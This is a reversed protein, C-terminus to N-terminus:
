NFAFVQIGIWTSSILEVKSQQFREATQLSIPDTPIHDGVLVGLISQLGLSHILSRRRFVNLFLVNLLM